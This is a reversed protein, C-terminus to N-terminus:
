AGTNIGGMKRLLTLVAEFYAPNAATFDLEADNAPHKFTLRYAHLMHGLAKLKLKYLEDLATVWRTRQLPSVGARELANMVVNKLKRDGYVDDGFVPAGAYAFHVRIQHTRGTELRAEAYDFGPYRELVTYHTVAEKGGKTLVAMRKRDVPHRGIDGDFKGKMVPLNGLTIAHYRRKIDRLKMM